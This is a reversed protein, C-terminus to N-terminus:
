KNSVARGNQLRCKQRAAYKRQICTSAKPFEKERSEGFRGAGHRGEKQRSGNEEGTEKGVFM